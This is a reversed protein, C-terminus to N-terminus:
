IAPKQKRRMGVLGVMGAGLLLISAPESVDVHVEDIAAVSFGSSKGATSFAFYRVEDFGSMDSLGLYATAPSSFNGSGTLKADNYTQWYGHLNLYGSGVAFSIAKFDSGDDRRVSVYANNGGAGMYNGVFTPSLEDPFDYCDYGEFGCGNNALGVYSFLLGGELYNNALTTNAQFNAHYDSFSAFNSGVSSVVAASATSAAGIAFAAILSQIIVNKM